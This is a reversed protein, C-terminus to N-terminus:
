RGEKLEKGLWCNYEHGYTSEPAGCAPCDNLTTGDFKSSGPKCWELRELYERLRSNDARLKDIEKDLEIGECIVCGDFEVIEDTHAKCVSVSHNWETAKTLESELEKIRNAAGEDIMQVIRKDMKM